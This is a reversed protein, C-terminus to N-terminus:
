ASEHTDGSLPEFWRRYVLALAVMGLRLVVWALVAAVVLIVFVHAPLVLAAGLFFLYEVLTPRPM